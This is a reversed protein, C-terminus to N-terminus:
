INIVYKFSAYGDAHSLRLFITYEDPDLPPLVAMITSETTTAPDIQLPIKQNNSNKLYLEATALKDAIETFTGELELTEGGLVNNIFYCNINSILLYDINTILQDGTTVVPIHMGLQHAVM